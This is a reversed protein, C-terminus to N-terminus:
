GMRDRGGEAYLRDDKPVATEMKGIHRLTIQSTLIPDPVGTEAARRRAYGHMRASLEAIIEPRESALNTIEGPDTSLDYLEIPPGDHFDPELAEILKWQGTRWGRKRMWTSETIYLDSITGCDARGNAVEILSRGPLGLEASLDPFGLADYVTPAIDLMSASGSVRHAAPVLGPASIICPVHLNADYLGHHDFYGVHDDLVEGHDSVIVIATDDRLGLEEVRAFLRALVTDLYAIEADYQAVPFRIDTVGDMWQAFYDRFPEFAWVPDMSREGPDREDGAVFMRDFPSPPLYPTHPDWYHLFLFFPRPDAACRDLAGLAVANVAEAKRWPKTPDKDWDFPLYADFGRTFWRGLNDVAVTHVGRRALAEAMLPIAEDPVHSGAHSVVGHVFADRGTHM